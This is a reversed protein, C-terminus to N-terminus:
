LCKSSGGPGVGGTWNGSRGNHYVGEGDELYHENGGGGRHDRSKYAHDRDFRLPRHPKDRDRGRDFRGGGGRDRRDRDNFDKEGRKGSGGGAGGGYAHWHDRSEGRHRYFGRSSPRSPEINLPVWKQKNGGSFLLSLSPSPPLSLSLSLPPSLTASLSFSHSLSLANPTYYVVSIACVYVRMTVVTCTGM